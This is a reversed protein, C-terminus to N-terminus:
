RRPPANTDGRTLLYELMLDNRLQEEPMDAKDIYRDAQSPNNQYNGRYMVLWRDGAERYTVVWADFLKSDRLDHWVAGNPDPRCRTWFVNSM